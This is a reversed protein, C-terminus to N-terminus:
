LLNENERYWANFETVTERYVNPYITSLRTCVREHADRSDYTKATYTAKRSELYQARIKSPTRLKMEVAMAVLGKLVPSKMAVRYARDQEHGETLTM